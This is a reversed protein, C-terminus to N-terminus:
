FIEPAKGTMRKVNPDYQLRLKEKYIDSATKEKAKAATKERTLAKIHRNKFESNLLRKEKEYQEPTIKGERKAKALILRRSIFEKRLTNRQKAAKLKSKLAAKYNKKLKTKVAPTNMTQGTLKAASLKKKKRAIAAATIGAAAGGTLIAAAIKRNRARRKKEAAPNAKLKAARKAKLKKALKVALIAAGASPLAVATTILAAKKLRKKQKASLAGIGQMSDDAYKWTQRWAATSMPFLAASQQGAAPILGSAAAAPSKKGGKAAKIAQLAKIGKAAGKALSIAEDVVSM